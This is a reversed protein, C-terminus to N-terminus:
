GAQQALLSSGISLLLLRRFLAVHFMEEQESLWSGIPVHLPPAYVYSVQWEKTCHLNIENM